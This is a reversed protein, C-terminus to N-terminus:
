GGLMGKFRRADELMSINNFLVFGSRGRTLEALARLEEGSYRHSYGKGGHLRLYLPDGEPPALVFPDLARVVRLGRLAEAIEGSGEWSRNRLELALIRRPEDSRARELFRLLNRLNEPSAEFSPPCQLLIAKADLAEACSLTIEWSLAVERSPKFLGLGEGRAWELKCRRYTPSTPPHTIGQFAKVLFAFGQPAEERTRRLSAPSPPSYFTSQIEVADLESFISRRGAPFGCTGVALCPALARVGACSEASSSLVLPGVKPRAGAPSKGPSAIGFVWLNVEVAAGEVPKGGYLVQVELSGERSPKGLPVVEFELGVPKLAFDSWSSVMKSFKLPRSSDEVPKGYEKKSVNKWGEPTKVWFGNDFFVALM